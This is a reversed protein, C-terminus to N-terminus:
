AGNAVEYPLDVLSLAPGDPQGLHLPAAEVSSIQLVALLDVGGQPAPQAQVVKGASNDTGAGANYIPEGPAPPAEIDVHARYMRRKLKGLYHMRAVVEQGTYCGKTFSIGGLSHLNAMQPVFAEVTEPVVTPVGAVTDLWSWAPYGVPTAGDAQLAQWLTALESAPGHIEFRAQPGPIRIVSLRAHQVAEDVAKPLAPLRSGLLAEADPGALGFRALEDSADELTVDSRLVFMRLRKLTPELVSHPLSLFYRDERHFLRMSALMRGKPNCYATLQSQQATVQRVDNTFQGQLFTVTDSGSAAILGLHSLDALVNGSEVIQREQTADGFDIVQDGDLTAQQQQLFTQWESNM